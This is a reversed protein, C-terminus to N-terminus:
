DGSKHGYGYLVTIDNWIGSETVLAKLEYDYEAQAQSLQNASLQLLPNPFQGPMPHNAGRWLQKAQELSLYGGHQRSKVEIREFGAATLLDHCKEATGTPQSLTVSIGYRHVVKQMVNGAIHATDAFAQIGILGGPKLLRHWHQLAAILDTMWIFASCCLVCDFSNEPFDLSEADALQFEVQGLGLATAKDRAQELMGSSIDVGVVRGTDGVLAATAIAVMGTGTAIDLVQQGPRIQADNVLCQAVPLHWDSQDYTASRHTYLEAIQQKYANLALQPTM